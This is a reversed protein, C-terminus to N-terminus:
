EYIATLSQRERLTWLNDSKSFFHGVGGGAFGLTQFQFSAKSRCQCRVTITLEPFHLLLASRYTMSDHRSSRPEHALEFQSPVSSFRVAGLPGCKRCSSAPSNKTHPISQPGDISRLNRVGICVPSTLTRQGKQQGALSPPRGSHVASKKLVNNRSAHKKM